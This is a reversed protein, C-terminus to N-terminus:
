ESMDLFFSPSNEDPANGVFASWDNKVAQIGIRLGSGTLGKLKGRAFRMEYKLVGGAETTTGVTYAESISQPDWSWADQTAGSFYLIDMNGVLFPGEMLIDYGGETFTGTLLGTTINNDSDLYFDFINGDSKKVAMEAYLYVYNGDYDMKVENFVGKTAGLPINTTVAAWDSLDGTNFKVPTTKAIRIVTSSEVAKGNVTAYLTPVYKGKGPYTHMPSEDTSSTGDGFDWKYGSIGTTKPTFKVDNGEVTVEYLLDALPAAKDKKCSNLLTSATVLALMFSFIKINKM